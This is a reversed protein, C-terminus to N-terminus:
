NVLYLKLVTKVSFAFKEIIMEILLVKELWWHYVEDVVEISYSGRYDSLENSKSFPKKRNQLLLLEEGNEFLCTHKLM